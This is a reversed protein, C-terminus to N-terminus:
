GNKIIVPWAARIYKVMSVITFIAALYFCALGINYIPLGWLPDGYIMFVISALQAMTKAKGIFSVEVRARDGLEAMWERLASVSIERAIIIIAPLTVMMVPNEQVLLVVATTVILKDAVPDLFAGFASEEKLLRALFGDAWDTIAALAFIIAAAENSWAFPLYFAIVFLPILAVRFLTIITPTTLKM